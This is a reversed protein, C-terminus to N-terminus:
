RASAAGSAAMGAGQRGRAGKRIVAMTARFLLRLRAAHCIVEPPRMPLPYTLLSQLLLKIAKGPDGAAYYSWGSTYHGHARCKRRFLPRGNWYGAKELKARIRALGDNMSDLQKSLSGGIDRYGTLREQICAAQSVSACRLWFDYDEPGRLQTDFEGVRDVVSKRVLVSSTAVPNALLMAALSIMSLTGLSDQDVDVFTGPWPTLQTALLGVKPCRQLVSLQRELKAPHWADDADLFAIVDGSSAQLGANRAKAVGGNAQRITRIRNGFPGLREETDDTSGDDVVIIEEPQRTQALVSEVAEVVLPGSNYTPIVVSVRMSKHPRRQFSM